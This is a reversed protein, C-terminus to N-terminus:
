IFNAQSFSFNGAGRLLTANGVVVSSNATSSVAVALADNGITNVQFAFDGTASSVVSGRFVTMVTAATAGIQGALASYTSSAANQIM